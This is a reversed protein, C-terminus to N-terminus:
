GRFVSGSVMSKLPNQFPYRLFPILGVLPMSVFWGGQVENMNAFHLFPILGILPMSVRHQCRLSRLNLTSIPYARNLANVCCKEAKVTTCSSATSIPYARGLANVGQLNENQTGRKGQLFSILADCDSFVTCCYSGPINRPRIDKLLLTNKIHINRCIRQTGDNGAISIWRSNVADSHM